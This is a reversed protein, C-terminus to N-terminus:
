ISAWFDIVYGEYGNIPSYAELLLFLDNNTFSHYPIPVDLIILNGNVGVYTGILQYEGTPTGLSDYVTQYLSVRPAIFVDTEVMVNFRVEDQGLNPNLFFYYYDLDDPLDITGGINEQDWQPLLTIFQADEFSDNFEVEDYDYVPPDPPEGGGNGGNGGSDGGCAAALLLFLSLLPWKVQPM